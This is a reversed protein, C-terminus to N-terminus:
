RNRRAAKNIIRVAQILSVKVMGNPAQLSSGDELDLIYNVNNTLTITDGGKFKGLQIKINEITSQGSRDVEGPEGDVFRNIDAQWAGRSRGTKVPNRKVVRSFIELAGERIAQNIDTVSEDIFLKIDSNFSM